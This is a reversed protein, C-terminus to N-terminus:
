CCTVATQLLPPYQLSATQQSPSCHTNSSQAASRDLLQDLQSTFHEDTPSGPRSTPHQCIASVAQGGLMRMLCSDRKQLLEARAPTM